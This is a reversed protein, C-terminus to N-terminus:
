NLIRGLMLWPFRWDNLVGISAFRLFDLLLFHHFSVRALSLLQENQWDRFLGTYAPIKNERRYRQIFRLTEEGARLIKQPAASDLTLSGAHERYCYVVKPFEKARMGSLVFRLCLERDGAIKLSADFNGIQTFVQKRFFWANMIATGGLSIEPLLGKEFDLSLHASPREVSTWFTIARGIVADPPEAVEFLRAAEGFVGPVYLDDSNLFTIIEGAAVHLGRNLADYMGADRGTLVILHPYRALVDLTNDTSGGDVIIHEFNPYNQALVSEIADSIM